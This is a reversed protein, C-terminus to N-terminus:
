MVRQHIPPLKSRIVFIIRNRFSSSSSRMNFSPSSSTQDEQSSFPLHNYPFFVYRHSM